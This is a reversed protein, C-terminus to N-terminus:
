RPMLNPDELAKGARMKPAPLDLTKVNLLKPFVNLGTLKNLDSISIKAYDKGEANKVLYAAAENKGPDYIAKFVYTPVLVRGNIRKLRPM